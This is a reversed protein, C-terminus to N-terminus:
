APGGAILSKIELGLADQLRDIPMELACQKFSEYRGRMRNCLLGQFRHANLAVAFEKGHLHKHQQWVDELGLVFADYKAKVFEYDATWEPFLALFEPAEGIRVIELMRKHSMHNTMHAMAVYAPNKLKIRNFDKDVVVFGEHEHGQFTAAATIAQDLTQLPYTKVCEWGYHGAWAAPNCEQLYNPGVELDRVGHLVIRPQPHRVVVRNEKTCLEFMLCTDEDDPVPMEYGLDKWTKWFLEAFTGSGASNSGSADPRGRTAVHWEGAYWYLTCLTGDLKEYVQASSWDITDAHGEGHNFFKDYPYAVVSWKRGETPNANLILGRCQQVIPEGMPSEIQDYNFGHLEPYRQHQSVKIKYKDVLAQLGHTRLFEQVLHAM